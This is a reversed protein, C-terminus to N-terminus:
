HAAERDRWRVGAQASVALETLLNKLAGLDHSKDFFYDAGLALCERRSHQDGYNSLVAVCPRPKVSEIGRLVDVGTGQKLRLDLTVVDPALETIKAIADAATTVEAAIRLNPVASLLRILRERVIASDEVVLVFLESVVSEAAVAATSGSSLETM